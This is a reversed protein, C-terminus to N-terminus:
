VGAGDGVPERQQTHVQWLRGACPLTQQLTMHAWYWCSWVISIMLTLTGKHVAWWVSVAASPGWPNFYGERAWLGGTQLGRIKESTNSADFPSLQQVLPACPPIIQRESASHSRWIFCEAATIPVLFSSNGIGTVSNTEWLTWVHPKTLANKSGSIRDGMRGTDSPHGLHLHLCVRPIKMSAPLLWSRKGAAKWVVWILCLAQSCCCSPFGFLLEWGPM